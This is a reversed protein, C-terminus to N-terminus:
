QGSGKGYKAARQKAWALFEAAAWAKFRLPPRRTLLCRLRYLIYKLYDM